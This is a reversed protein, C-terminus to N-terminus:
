FTEDVEDLEDGLVSVEITGSLSGAPITLTSSASTYDAGATATADSTAYEVTVDSASEGSLTAVFEMM